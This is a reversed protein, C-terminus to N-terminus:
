WRPNSLFGGRRVSRCLLFLSKFLLNGACKNAIWITTAPGRMRFVKVNSLQTRQTGRGIAFSMTRRPRPCRLSVLVTTPSVSRRVFGALLLSNSAGNWRRVSYFVYSTISARSCLDWHWDIFLECVRSARCSFDPELTELRRDRDKM